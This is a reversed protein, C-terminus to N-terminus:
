GVDMNNGKFGSTLFFNILIFLIIISEFDPYEPAPRPTCLFYEFLFKYSDKLAYPKLLWLCLESISFSNFLDVVLLTFNSKVGCKDGINLPINM